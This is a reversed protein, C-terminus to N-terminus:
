RNRTRRYRLSDAIGEAVSWSPQWRLLKKMLTTDVAGQSIEDNRAPIAGFELLSSDLDLLDRATEAFERVPTLVGTALNVVSGPVSEQLGLRLLGAAADKVYTFDRKQLGHTLKLPQGTWTAAVLAPLLRAPHEGPGYATFIRGVAAKLGTARCRDRIAYTGALKTRGYLAAPNEPTEETVAGAVTGYEFGSGAHVLRLGGWESRGHGWRCAAAIEEVLRHNIAWHLQEDTETRDIGYGALNFVIDPKLYRYIRRFNGRRALDERIMRATVGQERLVAELRREDRGIVWVEASERVLREVVWRGIFGAAGTVLVRVNAYGKPVPAAM